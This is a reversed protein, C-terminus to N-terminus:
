DAFKLPCDPCREVYRFGSVDACVLDCFYKMYRGSSDLKEHSTKHSLRCEVCNKPMDMELIAKM